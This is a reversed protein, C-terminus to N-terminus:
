TKKNRDSITAAVLLMCAFSSCTGLIDTVSDNIEQSAGGILPALFRSLAITSGELGMVLGINNKKAMDLTMNTAVVATVSNVICYPIGFLMQLFTDPFIALLAISIGQVSTMHLLLRRDNGRYRAIIPGVLFGTSTTVLEYFTMLLGATPAPHTTIPDYDQIFVAFSLLFGILLM